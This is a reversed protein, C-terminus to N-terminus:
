SICVVIKSTVKIVVIMKTTVDGAPMSVNETVVYFDIRTMVDQLLDNKYLFLTFSSPLIFYLFLDDFHYIKIGKRCIGLRNEFTEPNSSSPHLQTNFYSYRDSKTYCGVPYEVKELKNKYEIGM